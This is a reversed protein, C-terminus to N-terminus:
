CKLSVYYETFARGALLNVNKSKLRRASSGTLIFKLRRKEILRHVEDLLAPIKQIEDIIIWQKFSSPISESLRRPSALLKTYVILTWCILICLKKILMKSLFLGEM